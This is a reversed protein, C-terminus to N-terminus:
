LVSAVMPMRAGALFTDILEIQYDRSVVNDRRPARRSSSPDASRDHFGTVPLLPTIRDAAISSGVHWAGSLRLHHRYAYLMM